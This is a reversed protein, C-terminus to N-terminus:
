NKIHNDNLAKKVKVFLIEKCHFKRKKAYGESAYGMIQAINKLPVKDFFLELVKKCDEPLESLCQEFIKMKNNENFIEDFENAIEVPTDAIIEDNLKWEVFPKNKNKALQNLWIKKCVAYLYTQFSCEKIELGNSLAKYIAMLADQFVDKADTVDGSNSIIHKTILPFYTKYVYELVDNDRLRIGDFIQNDFYHM